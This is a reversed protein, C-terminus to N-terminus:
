TRKTVVDLVEGGGGWRQDQILRFTRVSVLDTVNIQAEGLGYPELVPRVILTAAASLTRPTMGALAIEAAAAAASQAALNMVTGEAHHLGLYMALVDVIVFSITAGVTLPQRDLTMVTQTPLLTVRRRVSQVFISDIYPVRLHIGPALRRPHRGCRTRIALEWPQVIFWWKFVQGLQRLLAVFTEM